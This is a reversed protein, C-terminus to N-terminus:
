ATARLHRVFFRVASDAEFRPLEKHRGANVHLTKEASAFADFLELGAQRDIHEDDWQLDLEIPITIRRALPVLTDPWFQGLVAARIRPEAVILPVGIATGLNIGFYGVPGDIEPLLLLADLVTRWEPVSQEALVGNYRVVIPGVPEGAEMARQMADIEREDYATRPRGGHGPADLSAAVLGGDVVLRRARGVMAPATRHTGGGHGLLVLPAPGAADAASWLAGTLEGVTFERQVVGDVTTTSTFRLTHLLTNM